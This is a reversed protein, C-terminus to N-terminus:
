LNAVFVAKMFIQIVLFGAFLLFSGKAALVVQEKSPKTLKAARARGGRGQHYM